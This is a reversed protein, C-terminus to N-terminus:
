IYVCSYFCALFCSNPEYTDNSNKIAILATAYINKKKNPLLMYAFHVTKAEHNIKEWLSYSTYLQYSISPVCSFTGDACCVECTILFALNAETAFIIIKKMITAM